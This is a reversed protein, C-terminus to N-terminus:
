ASRRAYAPDMARSPRHVDSQGLVTAPRTGDQLLTGAVLGTVLLAMSLATMQFRSTRSAAM